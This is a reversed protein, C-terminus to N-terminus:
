LRRDSAAVAGIFQREQNEVIFESRWDATYLPYYATGGPRAPKRRALNNRKRRRVSVGIVGVSYATNGIKLTHNSWRPEVVKRTQNSWDRL